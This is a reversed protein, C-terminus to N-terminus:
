LQFYAEVKQNKNTAYSKMTELSLSWKAAKRFAIIAKFTNVATLHWLAIEPNQHSILDESNGILIELGFLSAKEGETKAYEKASKITKAKNFRM